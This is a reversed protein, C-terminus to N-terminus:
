RCKWNRPWTKLGRSIESIENVRNEQSRKSGQMLQLYDVVILGINHAAEVARCPNQSRFGVPGAHRRYLAATPWGSAPSPCSSSITAASRAWACPESSHWGAGGPIRTALQDASM